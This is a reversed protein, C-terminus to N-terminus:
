PQAFLLPLLQHLYQHWVPWSHDGTTLHATHRIGLDDLRQLFAINANYLFDDHGCGIWLLSLRRNLEAPDTLLQGHLTRFVSASFAGIWGFVEPNGLGIFLSQGGGMSLGAIARQDAGARLRYDAEVRPLLEDLLYTQFRPTVREFWHMWADVGEGAVDDARRPAYGFPRVVIMPVADGRAILNDLIIDARGSMRWTVETDTYGHLLFLVPYRRASDRAYGPPTYVEYGREDGLIHSHHRHLHATGRPVDQEEYFAPPVAPVLLISTGAGLGAHVWPNATDPLRLGDVDFAYFYVGPALPGITVSWNGEAEATMPVPETVLNGTVQVSAASPATVALTVTGDARIVPSRAPQILYSMAPIATFLLVAVTASVFHPM